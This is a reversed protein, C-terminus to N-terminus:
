IWSSSVGSLSESDAVGSSEVVNYNYGLRRKRSLIMAIFGQQSALGRFRRPSLSGHSAMVKLDAFEVGLPSLGSLKCLM